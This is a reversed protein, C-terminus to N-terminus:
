RYHEAQVQCVVEKDDMDDDAKQRKKLSWEPDLWLAHWMETNNPESTSRICTM